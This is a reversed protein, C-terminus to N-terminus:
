AVRISSRTVAMRNAASRHSNPFRFHRL